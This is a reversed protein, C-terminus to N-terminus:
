RDRASEIAAMPGIGCDLYVTSTLQDGVSTRPQQNTKDSCFVIVRKAADHEDALEYYDGQVDAVIDHVRHSHEAGCQGEPIKLGAVVLRM